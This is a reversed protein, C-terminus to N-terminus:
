SDAAAEVVKRALHDPVEQHHSYSMIVTGAGSSLSRLEGIYALLEAEPVQAHVRTRGPAAPETGTIRGRRSSLDGLVDGTLADPVTVAMDMVPELLAAGADAAAERFALSGAVEFAMQSSDVSHHKGDLLSVEVDVVPYGALVGNAMAERVGKEVSPIFQNPIVGGVIRDHFTFGAGRDVPAVEIHAVGYQGHGGSQKVHRGVGAGPGRLTERYGVRRPVQEVAVGFKRRLRAITVDVHGPGLTHLVTQRTEPDREVRVVPDEEGLRALAISLKDEDSATVPEIAVRHYPEPLRVPPVAFPAGEAHLTDGTCVGDLKAVAVFEGASARQVPTQEKGQLTFLHHMRVSDGSRAVTLVDDAALTGSVVRLLNVRGLYPDSTTKAVYCAVPDDLARAAVSGDPGLGTVPSRDVPSPGEDVLFDLLLRPGIDLAVAGCLVPFFGCTAIGHAFVDALQKPDGIEGDLYRELLADDNEVIAEVLRERNRAAQEARSEPVPGDAREGAELTVATGHLLDIVGNFERAVGVPMHVPALPRGYRERLADVTRQYTANDRDFKNILVARPLGIEACAAWLEAHQAQVDVSADVVFVAMDAAPLAPYADGVADPGGPADLLNVRHGKWEMSATALALSHGRDVEEPEHDFTGGRGAQEGNAAALMAEALATKGAGTHGLLIVDRIRVTPSPDRGTM